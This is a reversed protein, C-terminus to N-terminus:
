MLAPPYVYVYTNHHAAILKDHLLHQM